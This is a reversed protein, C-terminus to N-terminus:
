EYSCAEDIEVVPVPVAADEGDGDGDAGSGGDSDEHEGEAAGDAPPTPEDAPAASVEDPVTGADLAAQRASKLAANVEDSIVGFDPEAPIILPPVLQLSTVPLEKARWALDVLQPLQQQPINTDALGSSAGALATFKQLVTGPDLENAMAGFVCRQRAMRDYDNTGTRSRAYWLAARGDFTHLGPEIVRGQQGYPIEEDVRITIGGVADILEQFGEMNVVVYYHIPLGLTGAAAQRVAELGAHEADPFLEPNNEGYTWTSNIMWDIRDGEGSFGRPFEAAAPTGSPFRARELNRPIGIVVTAGTRVDISVVNISDPRAGVRGLGEDSGILLVNLRGDSAAAVQGSPFMTVVADHAASAYRAALFFPTAVLGILALVTGLIMLRHRQALRPPDGLRWADVLLAIWGLAVAFALVKFTTLLWPRVALGLLTDLPVLWAVLAVLGVVAAWVQLVTRGLKRNGVLYQAIGPLLLTGGLLVLARRFRAAERFRAATAERARASPRHLPPRSRGPPATTAM